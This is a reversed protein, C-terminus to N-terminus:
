FDAFRVSSATLDRSRLERMAEKRQEETLHALLLKGDLHDVEHLFCRALLDEAEVDVPNEDLDIGVLHVRHPRTIDWHLEPVSLCGELYTWEGTRELIQPNVVVGPGDGIDYVFFRRQVGVQNAALGVGPADYMTELMDTALRRLADDIETVEATTQRLVPDGFVRIPLLAM